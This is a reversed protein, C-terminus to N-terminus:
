WHAKKYLDRMAMTHALLRHLAAVSKARVAESLGIRSAGLTGFAQVVDGREPLGGLISNAMEHEKPESLDIRWKLQNPSLVRNCWPILPSFGLSRPSHASPFGGKRRLRGADRKSGLAASRSSRLKWPNAHCCVARRCAIAGLYRDALSRYRLRITTPRRFPPNKSPLAPDGPHRGIWERFGHPSNSSRM